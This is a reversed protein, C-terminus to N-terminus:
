LSTIAIKKPKLAEPVERELSITLLGDKFTAGNVIVHQSLTFERKFNRLAIGKYLYTRASSEVEEKKTGSVYLTNNEVTVDVEDPTFGAVALIVEFQNEGYRIINYPPFGTPGSNEFHQIQSVLDDFGLFHRNISDLFSPINQTNLRLQNSM